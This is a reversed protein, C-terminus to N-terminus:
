IHNNVNYTTSTNYLERYVFLTGIYVKARASPLPVRACNRVNRGKKLRVDLMPTNHAIAWLVDFNQAFSSYTIGHSFIVSLFRVLVNLNDALMLMDNQAIEYLVNCDIM